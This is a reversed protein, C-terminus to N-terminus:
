SCFDNASNYRAVSTMSLTTHWLKILVHLPCYFTYEREESIKKLKLLEPFDIIYFLLIFIFM